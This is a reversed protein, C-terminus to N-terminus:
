TWATLATNSRMGGMITSSSNALWKLVNSNTIKLLSNPVSRVCVKHYHLHETSIKDITTKSVDLIFEGMEWIMVRRDELMIREVKSITEDSVSPWGARQDGHVNTRGNKFERCWKRVNQIDMGQQGYVEYLQQCIEIPSTDKICLLRIVSRLECSEPTTLPLKM